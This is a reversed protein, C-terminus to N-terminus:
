FKGYLLIEMSKLNGSDDWMAGILAVIVVPTAMYQSGISLWALLHEIGEEGGQFIILANFVKLISHFAIAQTILAKM